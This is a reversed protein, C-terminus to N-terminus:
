EVDMSDAPQAEVVVLATATDILKLQEKIQSVADSIIDDVYEKVKNTVEAENCVVSIDIDKLPKLSVRVTYDKIPLM